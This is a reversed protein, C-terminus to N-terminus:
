SAESVKIIDLVISFCQHYGDAESEPRCVPHPPSRFRLSLHCRGALLGGVGALTALSTAQRRSAGAGSHGQWSLLASSLKNIEMGLLIVASRGSSM